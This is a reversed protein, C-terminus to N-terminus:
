FVQPSNLSTETYRPPTLELCLDLGLVSIKPSNYTTYTTQQRDIERYRSFPEYIELLFPLLLTTNKCKTDDM